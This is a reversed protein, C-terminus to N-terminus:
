DDDYSSTQGNAGGLTALLREVRRFGAMEERVGDFELLATTLLTIRQRQLLPVGSEECLAFSSLVLRVVRDAAVVHMTESDFSPRAKM